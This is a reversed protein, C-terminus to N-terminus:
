RADGTPPQQGPGSGTDRWTTFLDTNALNHLSEVKQDDTLTDDNLTKALERLADTWGHRLGRSYDHM